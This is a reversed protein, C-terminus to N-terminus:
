WEGMMDPLEDLIRALDSARNRINQAYRHQTWSTWSLDQFDPPPPVVIAASDQLASSSSSSPSSLTATSTALTSTPVTPPNARDVVTDDTPAQTQSLQELIMRAEHDPDMIAVVLGWCVMYCIAAGILCSVRSWLTEVKGLIFALFCLAVAFPMAYLMLWTSTRLCIGDPSIRITGATPGHGLSTEFLSPMMSLVTGSTPHEHWATFSHTTTRQSSRRWHSVVRPDMRTPQSHKIDDESESCMFPQDKHLYRCLPCIMEKGMAFALSICSLHFEHRCALVAKAHLGGKIGDLCIACDPGPRDVDRKILRSADDSNVGGDQISSGEVAAISSSSSSSSFSISAGTKGDLATDSNSTARSMRPESSEAEDSGDPGMGFGTSRESSIVRGISYLPDTSADVAFAESYSSLRPEQKDTSQPLPSPLPSLRQDVMDPTRSTGPPMSSLITSFSGDVLSPSLTDEPQSPLPSSSEAPRSVQRHRRPRFSIIYSPALFASTGMMFLTDHLSLSLPLTLSLSPFLLAFLAPPPSHISHTSYFSRIFSPSHIFSHIAPTCTHLDSSIPTFFLHSFSVHM